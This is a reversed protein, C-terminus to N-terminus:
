VSIESSRRNSSGDDRHSFRNFHLVEEDSSDPEAPDDNSSTAQLPESSDEESLRKDDVATTQTYL